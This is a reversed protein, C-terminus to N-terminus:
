IHTALFDRVLSWANRAAASNYAAREDCNFGHEANSFEVDVFPKDAARLADALARHREPPINKDLGGWFMLFPAQVDQARDFLEPAINGYFSIAARLPVAGAALYSVRGGMCFGICALRSADVGELAGLARHAARIDAILGETTLATWHPRVAEFDTYSGEFGPATRHFLEPAVAVYGEDALRRAISRIHHNVGFAEQFVLIGPRRGGASPPRAVHLTMETGDEVTVTFKELDNRQDM